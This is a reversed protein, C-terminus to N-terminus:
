ATHKKQRKKNEIKLKKDKKEITFVTTIIGKIYYKVQVRWSMQM